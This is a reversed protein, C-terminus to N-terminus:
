EYKEALIRQKQMVITDVVLLRERTEKLEIKTSSLEHKADVLDRHLAFTQMMWIVAATSLGLGAGTQTALKKDIKM